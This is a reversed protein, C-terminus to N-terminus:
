QRRVNSPCVLPTVVKLVLVLTLKLLSPRQAREPLESLVTLSQSSAVPRQRRVKDCSLRSHAHRLLSPRKAREPPLVRLNQSTALPRQRCMRNCPRTCLAHRLLSPRKATDPL